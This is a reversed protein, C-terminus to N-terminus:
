EENKQNLKNLVLKLYKSVFKDRLLLLMGFYIGVGIIIQVFIASITPDLITGIYNVCVFMVAGSLFNRWGSLYMTFSFERRLAILQIALVATEAVVTSIAAGFAGFPRILFFNLIVNVIMGAFVSLTYPKMRNTPLLYQTGFVSSGGILMIIPCLMIMVPVIQEAGKADVFFRPIFNSAIGALGFMIPTALTLYLKFSSKIYDTAKEKENKIYTNAIRSLMVLGISTVVTLAVKVIKEANDYIGAQFNNDNLLGGLMVRDLQAYVTTAIQPLFMIFSFKLHRLFSHRRPPLFKGYRLRDYWLSGNGILNTLTYILIYLWLDDKSKIFIIILALGTLKVVFNRVTQFKFNEIGQYYWSIDLMSAGIELAFLMFLSPQYVNIIPKINANFWIFSFYVLLSVGLMLFRLLQIEWFIRDRKEPDSRNYAVERQGYINLGVCGMMVFVSVVALLVSFTGQNDIGLTRALYPMTVLPVILLLLQYSLNYLYNKLVSARKEPEM